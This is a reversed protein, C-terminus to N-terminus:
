HILQGPQPQPELNAGALESYRDALAIHVARVRPDTATEALEREAEERKIYYFPDKGM